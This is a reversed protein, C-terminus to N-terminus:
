LRMAKKSPPFISGSDGAEDEEREIDDEDEDDDQESNMFDFNFDMCCIGCTRLGHPGCVIRGDPLECSGEDDDSSDYGLPILGQAHYWGIPPM